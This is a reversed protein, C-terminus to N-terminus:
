VLVCTGEERIAARHALQERIGREFCTKNSTSPQVEDVLSLVEEPIPEFFLDCFSPDWVDM